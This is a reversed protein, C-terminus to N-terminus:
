TKYFYIPTRYIDKAEIKKRYKIHRFAFTSSIIETNITEDFLKDELKEMGKPFLYCVLLSNKLNEKLFDKKYVELNKVRLITKLIKSIIYPFFSLEYALVKKDPMNVALFIALSGFGSGLDIIKDKSSNKALILIESAVKKSSPMPSIGIKISSIAIILIIFLLSILLYLEFM